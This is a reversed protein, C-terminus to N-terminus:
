KSPVTRLESRLKAIATPGDHAALDGQRLAEARAVAEDVWAKEVDAQERKSLRPLSTLLLEALKERESESLAMAEGLVKKAQDNVGENHAQRAQRDFSPL